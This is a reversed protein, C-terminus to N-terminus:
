NLYIQPATLAMIGGAAINMAGGANISVTGGGNINMVGGASETYAGGVVGVYAGGVEQRLDIAASLELSGASRITFTGRPDAMEIVRNGFIIDRVEGGVGEKDPIGINNKIFTLNNVQEHSNVTHTGSTKSNRTNAASTYTGKVNLNYDGSITEKKSGGIETILDGEVKLHADGVVHVIAKDKNGEGVKMVMNREACVKIDRPSHIFIDGNPEFYIFSGSKHRIYVNEKNPTSDIYIRGGPLNVPFVNPYEPSIEASKLLDAAEQSLKDAIGISEKINVNEPSLNDSM